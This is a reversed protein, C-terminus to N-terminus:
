RSVGCPAPANVSQDFCIDVFEESSHPGLTRSEGGNYVRLRLGPVSNGQVTTVEACVAIPDTDGARFRVARRKQFWSTAQGATAFWAGRGKLDALLAHYCPSWMREPALSRDHWNTTMCGGFEVMNGVMRDLIGKAQQNSLGLYAPYFLATDMVHLSLELLRAAELPKYAQTTGARYGVTERYGVTSDYIAGAQELVAPSHQDYYLWHMRVGTTSGGTVRGIEELEEKAKAIDCWADIGHLGVECGAASMQHLLDAIDRAGYGSARFAPAPGNLDRGRDNEFPIVFFTSGLGKEIELYRNVFGRWFDKALGVHVFPLKVVAAWNALLTRVPLRGRLFNGMSAFVARYVFGLTTHDAKHRRISPHDVDHTLCAIFSYGDPVPPVEILPVGSAVILDRMLAIHLDLTPIAAYAVPQGVTLLARIERFLDYGIRMVTQDSDQQRSIASRHSQEDALLGSGKEQFAICDGYIPISRGKYALVCNSKRSAIGIKKQSDFSVKRGSYLLVLQAPGRAPGHNGTSLLVEYSQGERCFEWPTKFLEFFEAIVSHESSDAKVGIM